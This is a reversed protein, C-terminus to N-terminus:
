SFLVPSNIRTIGPCIQGAANRFRARKFRNKPFDVFDTVSKGTSEPFRVQGFCGKKINVKGSRELMITM